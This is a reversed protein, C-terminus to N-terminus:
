DSEHKLECVVFVMCVYQLDSDPKCVSPSRDPWITQYGHAAGRQLCHDHFGSGSVALDALGSLLIRLYRHVAGPSTVFWLKWSFPQRDFGPRDATHRFFVGQHFM